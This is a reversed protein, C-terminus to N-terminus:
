KIAKKREGRREWAHCGGSFTVMQVSSELDLKSNHKRKELAWMSTQFTLLSKGPITYYNRDYLAHLLVHWGTGM